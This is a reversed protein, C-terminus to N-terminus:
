YCLQIFRRLVSTMRPGGSWKGWANSNPRDVAGGQKFDANRWASNVFELRLKGLVEERKSYSERLLSYRWHASSRRLLACLHSTSLKRADQTHRHRSTSIIYTTIDSANHTTLLAFVPRSGLWPSVAHMVGGIARLVEGRSVDTNTVVAGEYISEPKRSWLQAAPSDLMAPSVCPYTRLNTWVYWLELEDLYRMMVLGEDYPGERM